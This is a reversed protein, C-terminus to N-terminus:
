PAGCYRDACLRVTVVLMSRADKDKLIGVVAAALAWKDRMLSDTLTRMAHPNHAVDLVVMGWTLNLREMRGRLGTLTTVAHLGRKVARSTVGPFLGREQTVALAALALGANKEQHMGPLGLSLPGTNWRRSRVSIRPAFEGGSVHEVRVLDPVNVVRTGARNAAIQVERRAIGQTGTVVPAGPKVIGAKERAISLITNGLYEQHELDVNTIISVLPTLINTADLRGGLGTEVVAIDVREDAFYRFAICTTAEFFTARTAEISPRLAEAYAVLRAEPMPEGDIRIRESFHVLHPSTYLGTRYGAATLVSALFAATSGKGNTGAIHFSPFTREPHGAANVLTRINRLGFKMGRFQLGYLYRLTAAYRPATTRRSVSSPTM